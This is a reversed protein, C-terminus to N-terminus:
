EKLNDIARLLFSKFLEKEEENFGKLTKDIAESLYENWKLIVEKGLDTIRVSFSRRDSAEIRKILGKESLGDLINSVTSPKIEYYEAIDIQMSGDHNLLYRLIRPQGRSLDLEDAYPRLTEQLLQNLRFVLTNLRAEM